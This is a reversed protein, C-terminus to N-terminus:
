IRSEYVQRGVWFDSIMHPHGRVGKKSDQEIRSIKSGNRCVWLSNLDFRVRNADTAFNEIFHIETHDQTFRQCESIFTVSDYFLTASMTCAKKMFVTVHLRCKLVSPSAYFLACALYKRRHLFDIFKKCDKHFKTLIVVEHIPSKAQVDALNSSSKPNKIIPSTKLKHGKKHM